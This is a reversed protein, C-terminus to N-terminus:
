QLVYDIQNRRIYDLFSDYENSYYNRSCEENLQNYYGHELFFDIMLTDLEHRYDNIRNYVIVSGLIESDILNTDIKSYIIDFLQRRQEQEEEDFKIRLLIKFIDIPLTDFRNIINIIDEFSHVIFRNVYENGDRSLINHTRHELLYKIHNENFEINFHSQLWGIIDSNISNNFLAFSLLSDVNVRLNDIGFHNLLMETMVIDGSIISSVFPNDDKGYWIFNNEDLIIRLINQKREILEDTAIYKDYRCVHRAFLRVDISYLNILRQIEELPENQIAEFVCWENPKYGDNIAQNFINRDVQYLHNITSPCIGRNLEHLFNYAQICKIPFFRFTMDMFKIEEIPKSNQYYYPPSNNRIEREQERIKEDEINLQEQCKEIDFEESNKTIEIYFQSVM